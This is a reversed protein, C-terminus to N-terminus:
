RPIGLSRDVMAEALGRVEAESGAISIGGGPCKAGIVYFKEMLVAEWQVGRHVGRIVNGPPMKPRTREECEPYTAAIVAAMELFNRVTFILGVGESSIILIPMGGVTGDRKTAIVFDDHRTTPCTALQADYELGAGKDTIVVTNPMRNRERM